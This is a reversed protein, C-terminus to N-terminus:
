LGLAGLYTEFDSLHGSLIAQLIELQIRQYDHVAINRFGVMHKMAEACEQSILKVSALIDFGDRSNQPIGLRGAAIRHMALDISAECARLLNLIVSDQTTFNELRAPDGRYEEDIRALCRRIIAAKNIAIDDM